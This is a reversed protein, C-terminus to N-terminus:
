RENRYQKRMKKKADRIIQRIRERTVSFIDGVEKLTLPSGGDLGYRLRIIKREKKNVFKLLYDVLKHADKNLLEDEPTPCNSEIRDELKVDDTSPLIEILSTTYIGNFNRLVDKVKEVSWNRTKAIKEFIIDKDGYRSTLGIYQKYVSDMLEILHTPKRIVSDHSTRTQMTKIWRRCYTGFKSRRYNWSVVARRLSQNGTQILDSFLWSKNVMLAEQVVAKLNSLILRDELNNLRDTEKKFVEIALRNSGNLNRFYESLRYFENEIDVLNFSKKSLKSMKQREYDSAKHMILSVFYKKDLSDLNNSTLFNKFKDYLFKNEYILDITRLRCKELEKGIETEQEKTLIDYRKLEEFYRNLATKNTNNTM